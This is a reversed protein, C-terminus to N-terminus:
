LFFISSCHQKSTAWLNNTNFISQFPMLHPIYTCFSTGLTTCASSTWVRRTCTAPRSLWKTHPTVATWSKTVCLKLNALKGLLSKQMYGFSLNPISNFEADIIHSCISSMNWLSRIHIHQPRWPALEPDNLMGSNHVTYSKKGTCGLELPQLADPPTVDIRSCVLLHDTFWIPQSASYPNVFLTPTICCERILLYHNIDTPFHQVVRGPLRLWKM